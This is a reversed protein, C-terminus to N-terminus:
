PNPTLVRYGGAGDLEMGVASEIWDKIQEPTGAVPQPLAWILGYGNWDALVATKGDSSCAVYMVDDEYKCSPGIRRPSPIDWVQAGERSCTIARNNSDFTASFVESDHTLTTILVGSEADWVRATRDDSATIVWKNDQSFAGGRIQNQHKVSAILTGDRQWLKAVGDEGTTLLLNGNPAIATALSVDANGHLLEPGEKARTELNWLQAKGAGGVLVTKGNDGVSLGSLGVHRIAQGIREHSQLSWTHVFGDDEGAVVLTEDGVTAFAVSWIRSNARLVTGNRTGTKADWLQVCSNDGATAVFRGTPDIATARVVHDRNPRGLLAKFMDHILAVFNKSGARFSFRIRVGQSQFIDEIKGLILQIGLIAANTDRNPKPHHKLLLFPQKEGQKWIRVDGDECATICTREQPQGFVVSTVPAPHLLPPMLPKPAGRGIFNTTDHERSKWYNRIESMNWLLATNSDHIGILATDGETDLAVSNVRGRGSDTTVLRKQTEIDIFSAEWNEDGIVLTKEDVTASRVRGGLAIELTAQHRQAIDRKLPTRFLQFIGDKEDGGGAFFHKGDPMFGVTMVDMDQKLITSTERKEFEWLRVVNSIGILAQNGDQSFAVSHIPGSSLNLRDIEHYPTTTTWLIVQGDSGGSIFRMGDPSFALVSVADSHESLVLCELTKLNWVRVISDACGTLLSKSDPSIAMALVKDPHPLIKEITHCQRLWGGIELRISDCLDACKPSQSAVDLAHTLELLGYALQGQECLGRGRDWYLMANQRQTINLANEKAVRQQNVAIFGIVLGVFSTLLLVLGGVVISKHGRGWRGVRTKLPDRFVSVPEDALWHGIDTALAEASNYRAAPENEMASLCIAELPEPVEKRVSRPKPFDAATINEFLDTLRQGKESTFPPRGTLIQYLTAGLCYVDTGKTIRNRKEGLACAAQEPSMYLPTGLFEGTVLSLSQDPQHDGGSWMSTPDVKDQPIHEANRITSGSHVDQLDNAIRALGWDVVMTEGFAGVKVNDPKLDLHLCNKTHAYAVAHCVDQFQSLLRRFSEQRSENGVSGTYYEEIRETLTPWELFRMAYSPRDDATNELGYVPVINPHELQSTIKAELEFRHRDDDGLQGERLIKLAVERDLQQDFSLWVEGFGGLGDDKRERLLFVRHRDYDTEFNM